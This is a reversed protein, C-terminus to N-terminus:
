LNAGPADTPPYRKPYQQTAGEPPDLYRARKGCGGIGLAVFVLLAAMALKVPISRM